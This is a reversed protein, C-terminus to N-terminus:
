GEDGGLPPRADVPRRELEHSAVWYGRPRHGEADPETATVSPWLLCGGSRCAELPGACFPQLDGWAGPDDIVVEVRRDGQLKLLVVDGPKFDSM